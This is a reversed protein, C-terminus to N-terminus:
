CDAALVLRGDREVFYGENFLEEVALQADSRDVRWGEAEMVSIFLDCDFVRGAKYRRQECYLKIKLKVQYVM